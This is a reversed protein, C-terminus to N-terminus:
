LAVAARRARVLHMGFELRREELRLRRRQASGAVHVAAHRGQLAGGVDGRVHRPGFRPRRGQGLHLLTQREPQVVPNGLARRGTLRPPIENLSNPVRVHVPGYLSPGERSTGVLPGDLSRKRPGTCKRPAKCPRKELLRAPKRPAKCPGKELPRAHSWALGQVTSERGRVARPPSSFPFMLPSPGKRPAKCLGSSLGKSARRPGTASKQSAGQSSGCQWAEEPRAEVGPSECRASLRSPGQTRVKACRRVLSRALPTCSGEQLPRPPHLSSLGQSSVELSAKRTFSAKCPVMRPVTRPGTRPTPAPRLPARSGALPAECSCKEPEFRRKRVERQEFRRKRVGPQVVVPSRWEWPGRACPKAPSRVPPHRVARALFRALPRGSADRFPGSAEKQARALPGTRLVSPRAPCGSALARILPHATRSARGGVARPAALPWPSPGDGTCLARALAKDLGTRLRSPIRGRQDRALFRAHPSARWLPRALSAASAKCAVTVKCPGTRKANSPGPFTKVPGERVWSGM